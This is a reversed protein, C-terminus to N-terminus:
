KLNLNLNVRNDVNSGINLIQKKLDFYLEDASFNGREDKLVVNNSVRLFNESNSYEALQSSLKSNEYNANVNKKFVMDLTRNNYIGEESYVELFTDDKFYFLAEVSNMKILNKDERDNFAEGAKLIYRNGSLDFGSYQINLFVDGKEINLQEDQGDIEKLKKEPIISVNEDNNKELYIFFILILGILFLSIQVSRIKKKRNM